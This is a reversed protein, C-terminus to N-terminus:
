PLEIIEGSLQGNENIGQLIQGELDGYGKATFVSRSGELSNVVNLKGEWYGGGTNPDLRFTGIMPYHYSDHSNSGAQVTFIAIVMGNVRPESSQFECGLVFDRTITKGNPLTTTDGGSASVVQETGTYHTRVAGGAAVPGTPAALLLAFALLTLLSFLQKKM